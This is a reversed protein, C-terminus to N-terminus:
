FYSTRLVFYLSKGDKEIPQYYTEGVKVISVEGIKVMQGGEPLNEVVTGAPPCLRIDKITKKM